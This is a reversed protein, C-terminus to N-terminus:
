QMCQNRSWGTTVVFKCHSVCLLHDERMMRPM